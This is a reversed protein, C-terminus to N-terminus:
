TAFFGGKLDAHHKALKERKERTISPEFNGGELIFVLGRESARRLGWLATRSNLSSLDDEGRTSTRGRGKTTSLRSKPRDGGRERKGRRLVAREKRGSQL